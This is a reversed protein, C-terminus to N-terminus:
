QVCYYPTTLDSPVALPGRPSTCMIPVSSTCEYPVYCTDWRVCEIERDMVGSIPADNGGHVLVDIRLLVRDHRLAIASAKSYTCSLLRQLDPWHTSPHIGTKPHFLPSVLLILLRSSTHDTAYGIVSALHTYSTLSYIPLVLLTNSVLQPREM